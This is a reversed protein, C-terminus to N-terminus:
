TPAEPVIYAEDKQIMEEINAPCAVKTWNDRWIERALNLIWNRAANWEEVTKFKLPKNRAIYNDIAADIARYPSWQKYCVYNTVVVAFGRAGMKAEVQGATPEDTRIRVTPYTAVTKVAELLEYASLTSTIM